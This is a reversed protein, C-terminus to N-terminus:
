ELNSNEAKQEASPGSIDACNHLLIPAMQGCMNAVFGLKSKAGLLLESAPGVATNATEVAAMQHYPRDPLSSSPFIVM